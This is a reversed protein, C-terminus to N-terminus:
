RRTICNDLHFIKLCVPENQVEKSIEIIIKVFSLGILRYIESEKLFTVDAKSLTFGNGM